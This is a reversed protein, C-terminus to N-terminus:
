RDFRLRAEVEGDIVRGTRVFGNREYVPEPSGRGEGYTVSMSAHGAARWYATLLGLVISGIGRRQYMRDVLLRWLFPEPHRETPAAMMVFGAVEDDVVIARMWPIVIDGEYPEPFLAEALSVAMPAVYREQTKHTRLELLSPVTAWDVQQLSVKTPRDSPRNRWTEWGARTVGYIHDDSNDEGVWFSLKTHGELVLGLRELVQASAINDPHLM